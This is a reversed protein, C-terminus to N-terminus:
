REAEQERALAELANETMVALCRDLIAIDEPALGATLARDAGRALEALPAYVTRGLPTASILVGPGGGKSDSRLLGAGVLRKVTRSVQAVGRSLLGSLENISLGPTECVRALVRWEFESLGSVRGYALASARSMFDVLRVVRVSILERSLPGGEDGKFLKPPGTLAGEEQIIKALMPGNRFV